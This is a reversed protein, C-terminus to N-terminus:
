GQKLFWLEATNFPLQLSDPYHVAALYLGQPAATASAQTRDKAQLLEQSWEVPMKGSGISCLSGVMNRVMHYLFANALIDFIVLDGSRKVTISSINRIPSKSQCGGARFSAFNHEGIWNQAAAHMKDADLQAYHWGVYEHLLSPRMAKNYLVYKYHRQLASYRANFDVPVPKAWLVRIDRPLITNCGFIWAREERPVAVDVHVVQGSAHVGADTRGACVTRVPHNAIHSLAGEIAGQLTPVMPDLQRQWGSYNTGIYELGVALRHM